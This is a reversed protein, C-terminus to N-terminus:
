AWPGAHLMGLSASICEHTVFAPSDISISLLATMGTKIFIRGYFQTKNCNNMCLLTNLRM